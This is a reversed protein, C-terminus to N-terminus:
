FSQDGAPWFLECKKKNLFLGFSPGLSGIHHLLELVAPRSGVITGDDLYWLSLLVGPTPPIRDFLSTLVLSFLLPGLPDGQQVGSLSLIRRRGFRLETPFVYCWQAWGYLEPLCAKVKELFVSRDCENFANRMDLKLLCLDPDSGYHHLCCRTAHIAAELGGKVGVGVQGYPILIDVLRPRVASCCIRSTLRRLVEGVAIPRVGSDKKRLVTLPAGALWPSLWSHAKGSLLLNILVTSAHLCDQTAPASHGCIADLLHQARLGSGGPSSGHPFRRLARVVDQNDTTLSSPIDNDFSPLNNSPHRKLLEAWALDDSFAATGLSELARIANGYRGKRAWRLARAANSAALSDVGEAPTGDLLPPDQNRKLTPHSCDSLAEKWLGYVDNDTSWSKLRQSILTAMVVRKKKVSVSPSRLIAKPLLHLRVTGWVNHSYARRLETALTESLLPRVSRPVHLTTSIPSVVIEEMIATFAQFETVTPSGPFKLSAAAFLGVISPDGNDLCVHSPVTLSQCPPITNSIPAGPPPPMVPSGTHAPLVDSPDLLSGHCQESGGGLLRQCGSGHFRDHYARRCTPSSCILRHYQTFFSLKPFEQRSIHVNNIHSWLLTASPFQKSCLPCLHNDALTASSPAINSDPVSVFAAPSKRLQQWSASPLSEAPSAPHSPSTSSESPHLSPLSAKASVPHQGHLTSSISVSHFTACETSTISPSFFHHTLPTSSGSISHLPPCPKVLHVPGAPDGPNKSCVPPQTYPM